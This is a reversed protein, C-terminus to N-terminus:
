EEEDSRMKFDSVDGLLHLTKETGPTLTDAELLFDSAIKINHILTTRDAESDIAPKWGMVENLEKACAKLQATTPYTRIM